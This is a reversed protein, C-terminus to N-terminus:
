ATSRCTLRSLRGAALCAHWCRHFAGYARRQRAASEAAVFRLARRLHPIELRCGGGRRVLGAAAGRLTETFVLSDHIEGLHEQLEVLVAIEARFRDRRLGALLELTYRLHKCAIRMRHLDATREPCEAAARFALLEKLRKRILDNALRADAATAGDGQRLSRRFRRVLLAFRDRRALGRVTDLLSPWAQQRRMRLYRLLRRLPPLLRRDSLRALLGELTAIPVDLDRVAGLATGLERLQRRARKLRRRGGLLPALLRLGNRLRRGNVRLDHVCRVDPADGLRDLDRHLTALLRLLARLAVARAGHRTGPRTRPRQNNGVRSM